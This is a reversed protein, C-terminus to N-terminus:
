GHSVDDDNGSSKRAGRRSFWSVLSGGVVIVAGFAAVIPGTVEEGGTYPIKGPPTFPLWPESSLMDTAGSTPELTEQDTIDPKEYREKM